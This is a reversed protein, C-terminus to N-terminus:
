NSRFDKVLDGLYVQLAPVDGSLGVFDYRRALHKASVSDYAFNGAHLGAERVTALAQEVLGQLKSSSKPLGASLSLDGEGILVGNIGPVAVIEKLNKIGEVSEIIILVLCNENATEIYDAPTQNTSWGCFFGAGRTGM